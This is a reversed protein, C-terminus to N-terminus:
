IFEGVFNGRGDIVDYFLKKRGIKMRRSITEGDNVNLQKKASFIKVM